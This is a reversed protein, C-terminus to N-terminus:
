DDGGEGWGGYGGWGEGAGEGFPMGFGYAPTIGFMGGGNDGGYPMGFGGFSLNAFGPQGACGALPALAILLLALGTWGRDRAAM